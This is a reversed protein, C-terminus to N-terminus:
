RADALVADLLAIADASDWEAAGMLRIVERGERDYIITVPMGQSRVTFQMRRTPDIYFDLGAGITRFDDLAKQRDGAGDVSVAVVRLRDGYHAQLRALTPMEGRCPPCWTAWLNFVVVEGRFAALTLSEGAEDEFPLDPQAPPEDMITLAAMEGTAYALLGEGGPKAAARFLVYLVGAVAVACIAAVIWFGVNRQGGSSM